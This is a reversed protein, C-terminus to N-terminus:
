NWPKEQWAKEAEESVEMISTVQQLTIAPVSPGIRCNKNPGSAALGLVSKVDASWYVCMQAQRLRITKKTTPEGYGFFVGRHATTVVLPVEGTQSTKTKSM